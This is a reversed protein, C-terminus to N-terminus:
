AALQRLTGTSQTARGMSGIRASQGNKGAIMEALMDPIQHGQMPIYFANAWVSHAVTLNDLQLYPDWRQPQPDVSSWWHAGSRLWAARLMAISANTDHLGFETGCSPCINYDEPPDEMGYGCVPCMNVM